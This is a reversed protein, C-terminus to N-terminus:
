AGDNGWALTFILQDTQSIFNWVMYDATIETRYKDGPLGMHEITWACIENWHNMNPNSEWDLRVTYPYKVDRHESRVVQSILWIANGPHIRPDIKIM